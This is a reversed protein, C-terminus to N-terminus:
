CSERLILEAPLIINEIKKNPTIIRETILEAAKEGIESTPQKITSLPPTTIGSWIYDDYGIIAVEEPVKISSNSLFQVAGISMLSSSVLLATISRDALIKKCLEMSSKIKPDGFGCIQQDFTIQHKQLSAIYGKFRDETTSLGKSAGIFAIRKHGKYILHDVAQEVASCGDVIISDGQISDLRRDIFVLPYEMNGILKRYNYDRTTPAIIIGSVMYSKLQKIHQIELNIDENSNCLIVNYGQQNLKKEVITAVETFFYNSIDPVILGIVKSKNEKLSKALYNPSYSLEDIAKLIREKTKDSVHKTNNLVHSVTAVSVGARNAVDRIGIAM